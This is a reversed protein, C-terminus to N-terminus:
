LHDYTSDILRVTSVFGTDPDTYLGLDLTGTTLVGVHFPSLKVAQRTYVAVTDTPWVLDPSCFPCAPMPHDILVFFRSEDMLPPAMYGAVRIRTGAMSRAHDSLSLDPNYLHGIQATADQGVAFRPMLAAGVGLALLKRRNM